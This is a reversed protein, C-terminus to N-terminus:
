SGLHKAMIAKVDIKKLGDNFIKAWKQGEANKKFCVYLKKDEMIKPNMALKGAFPKLQPDTKMLYAFVNSDVVALDNRGSGLKLLNRSDDPAVDVKQQKAAVRADFEATNVYDQVVGVKKSALDAISSWSVPADVRQALGLPGSGMPESLTFEKRVDASDYEPFYGAFAPDSKGSDVARSWPYFEIVLDYGMAKFAAKAVAASAGQDPLKAGTYPPWDLSALKVTQAQAVAMLGAACFLALLHKLM